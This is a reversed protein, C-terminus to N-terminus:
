KYNLELEHNGLRLVDGKRLLVKEHPELRKGNIYTGNAPCLDQLIVVSKKDITIMCHIRSVSSDNNICINCKRAESGIFNTDMELDYQLGENDELYMKPLKRVGVMKIIDDILLQVDDYEWAYICQLKQLDIWWSLLSNPIDSNKIQELLIVYTNKNLFQSMEYEKYVYSKSGKCFLRRTIFILIAKAGQIHDAIETNWEEGYTLGYDYWLPIYENLKSLLTTLKGTDESNYSVFYYRSGTNPEFGLYNSM